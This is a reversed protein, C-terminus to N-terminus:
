RVEAVAAGRTDLHRLAEVVYAIQAEIMIVQSTHGLGTNPGVLLFLNPFGPVTTGRHAHMGESWCAALTHGSRGTVRRAVPIDTVQFGTGFIISDVPHETGDAAVVSRPRVETVGHPVLDVNPRTLAPYYDSSVLIRKCGITYTPTLRDRLAPDPVQRRLHARALAEAGAMLRQSGAFGAVYSERGWYIASRALRQVLPLHRFALRELRTFRRDLRPVIWPPTRQFVSLHDVRPQIQPVIQIASAGTGVVAVREGALDHDHRWRASHFATGEFTDLGPLAPVSPDSLAGTASVLVQAVFSGGSTDVYWRRDEEAWRAALLEHGMRLHPRLGFRDACGRLYAQIEPQSSFSSSWDPNPAFSFSYLHSPVDCAAGPYTNDRWTGGVEDGRDLIVFDSVGAQLLRIGMGLGAFGAGAVLVRVAQRRGGPAEPTVPEAVATM